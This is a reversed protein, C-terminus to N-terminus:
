LRKLRKSDPEWNSGGEVVIILEGEPQEAQNGTPPNDKKVIGKVFQAFKGAKVLARVEDAL